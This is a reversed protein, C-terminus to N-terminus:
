LARPPRPGWKIKHRFFNEVNDVFAIFDDVAFGAILNMPQAQKMAGNM